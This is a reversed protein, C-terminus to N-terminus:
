EPRTVEGGGQRPDDVPPANMLVVADMVTEDKTDDNRPRRGLVRGGRCDLVLVGADPHQGDIARRIEQGTPTGM